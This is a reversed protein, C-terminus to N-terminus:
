SPVAVNEAPVDTITFSVMIQGPDSIGTQKASTSVTVPFVDMTASALGEDDGEPFQVIYGTVDRALTTRVDTSDSSLYMTLSSADASITGPIQRTFRSKLDPTDVPNSTSTFGAVEAIEATLDSGADLEARLPATYDAITPVFYYQRTGLPLYRSTAAIPTAAM